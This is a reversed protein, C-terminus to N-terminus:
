CQRRVKDSKKNTHSTTESFVTTMKEAREKFREYEQKTEEVKCIKYKLQSLEEKTKNM